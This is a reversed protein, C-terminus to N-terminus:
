VWAWNKRLVIHSIAEPTVGYERAIAARSRKDARIAEIDQMKIKSSKNKEGRCSTGHLIRHGMNEKHTAWMLNDARSNQRNGDIHACEMGEPAPGLFASAVLRHVAMRKANDLGVQLYGTRLLWPKLPGGAIMVKGDGPGCRVERPLSKVNGLNSVMYHPHNKVVRWEENEFDSM